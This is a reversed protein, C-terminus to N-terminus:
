APAAPVHPGLHFGLSCAKPKLNKNTRARYHREYEEEGVEVYDIGNKLKSFVLRALKHATAPIAKPAGLYAKKRRLFGGWRLAATTCATHPWACPPRLRLAFIRQYYSQQAAEKAYAGKIRQIM